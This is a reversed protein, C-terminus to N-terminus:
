NQLDHCRVNNSPLTFGKTAFSRRGAPPLNTRFFGEQLLANQGIFLLCTAFTPSSYPVVKQKRCQSCHHHYHLNLCNSFTPKSYPVVKQMPLLPLPYLPPQLPPTATLSCHHVPPLPPQSFFHPQQLPASVEQKMSQSCHHHYHLNLCNSFTPKSYTVVEQM